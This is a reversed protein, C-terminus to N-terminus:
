RQSAVEASADPETPTHAKKSSKAGVTVLAALAAGLIIVVALPNTRLGDQMSECKLIWAPKNSKQSDARRSRSKSM